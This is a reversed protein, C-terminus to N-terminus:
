WRHLSMNLFITTFLTCIVPHTWDKTSLTRKKLCENMYKFKYCYFYESIKLKVNELAFMMFCPVHDLIRMVIQTNVGRTAWWHHMSCYGYYQTEHTWTTPIISIFSMHKDKNYMAYQSLHIPVYFNTICIPLQKKYTDKPFCFGFVRSANTDSLSWLFVM